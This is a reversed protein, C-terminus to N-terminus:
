RPSPEAIRRRLTIVAIAPAVGIRLPPGTTGLGPHVFLEAEGLRHRGSAFPGLTLAYNIRDALWPVGVQGWHTHGSLVLSAGRRALEPFSAPDHALAVLAGGEFGAFAAEVDIRRTFVDDVGCLELRAEGRRLTTRENALIRIGAEGLASLLPEGNEYYDHNGMVAVVGDRATLPALTAAVERHFSVGSTVFDGTLAVLDPAEANARRVWRAVRKGSCFSGVHLDSLQVIRYGDFAAPLSAVAVELRAVRVWRRRVVVGWLALSLGAAHAGALGLLWDDGVLAVVVGLPVFPVTLYLSCWHVYYLEELARRVPGLRRDARLIAIRGHFAWVLAITLMLAGGWSPLSGGSAEALAAAFLASLLATTLYLAIITRRM